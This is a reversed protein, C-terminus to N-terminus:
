VLYKQKWTDRGEVGQNKRQMPHVNEPPTRLDYAQAFISQNMPRRGAPGHVERHLVLSSAGNSRGPLSSPVRNPAFRQPHRPLTQALTPQIPGQTYYTGRPRSAAYTAPPRPIHIRPPVNTPKSTSQQRLLEIERFPRQPVCLKAEEAAGPYKDSWSILIGAVALRALSFTM